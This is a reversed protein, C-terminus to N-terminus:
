DFLVFPGFDTSRRARSSRRLDPPAPAFDNADPGSNFTITDGSPETNDGDDAARQSSTGSPVVSNARDDENRRQRMASQVKICRRVNWRKGDTTWVTNGQAKTVRVPDSYVPALKHGPSPLRVRISDGAVIQTRKAHVRQDHRDKMLQQAFRVRRKISSRDPSSTLRPQTQVPRNAAATVAVALKNLPTRVPFSLMLSAPSCGTTSHPLTRYAALTQRLSCVFTKGETMAARIGEKLVRNVREVEQLV